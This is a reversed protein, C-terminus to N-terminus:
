TIRADPPRALGCATLSRSLRLSPTHAARALAADGRKRRAEDTRLRTTRLSDSPVSESSDARNKTRADGSRGPRHFIKKHAARCAAFRIMAEDQDHQSSPSSNRAIEGCKGSRRLFAQPAPTEKIRRFDHSRRALPSTMRMACARILLASRRHHTAASRRQGGNTLRIRQKKRPATTIPACHM